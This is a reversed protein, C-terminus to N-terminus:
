FDKFTPDDDFPIVEEPRLAVGNTGSRKAAGNVPPPAAAAAPPPTAPRPPPAAITAPRPPLAAKMAARPAPAATVAVRASGPRAAPKPRPAAAPAASVPEARVPAREMRFAGVLTALRQSEASLEVAAASSRESAAANQQTVQTMEAVAATVQQVGSSQERAAAAMEGVISTVKSVVGTIETLKGAVSKATTDGDRTQRVSERILGETKNAAEKSRMALSRVEEAVVAFGRGADGARAAEVAANLALLNTQFAIENIDKIIQSTSEASARIKEMAGSMEEMTRAGEGAMAQASHALASAQQAHDSTQKVMSAMAELSSATQQLSAAQRSAGSAVAQSSAAIQSAAGSVQDTGHAVQGLADHLAQATGNLADRIRAYEGPYSGTMRATLDHRALRELVATADQVPKGVTELLRNLNEILTRNYGAYRSVDARVGLRGETAAAVMMQVDAKRRALLEILANWDRKVQDFDGEFEHTVPEPVEGSAMKRVLESGMALPRTFADMTRNMAEVVPRFETAVRAPEARVQLQGRGVAETLRAAEGVLARTTRAMGRAALCGIGLLLASAAVQVALPWSRGSGDGGLYVLVSALLVAAQALVFGGLIKKATSLNGFSGFM